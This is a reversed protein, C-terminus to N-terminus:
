RGQPSPHAQGPAQQGLPRLTELRLFAPLSRILLPLYFALLGQALLDLLLSHLGEALTKAALTFAALPLALGWLGPQFALRVRHPLLNELFLAMALAFWWGGLGWLAAGLPHLNELDAPLLGAAKAGQLLSPPAPIGVGVPALGVFFGPALEPAPPEYAYLRALLNAGVWLFLVLGLGLFALM